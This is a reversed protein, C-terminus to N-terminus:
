ATRTMAEAMATSGANQTKTVLKLTSASIKEVSTSSTPRLPM